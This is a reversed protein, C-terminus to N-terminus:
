AVISNEGENKRKSSKPEDCDIALVRRYYSGYMLCPQTAAWQSSASSRPPCVLPVTSSVVSSFQVSPPPPALTPPLLSLRNSNGSVSVHTGGNIGSEEKASRHKQTQRNRFGRVGM